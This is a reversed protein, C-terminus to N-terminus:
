ERNGLHEEEGGEFLDTVDLTIELVLAEREKNFALAKVSVIDVLAGGEIQADIHEYIRSLSTEQWNVETPWVFHNNPDKLERLQIKSIM